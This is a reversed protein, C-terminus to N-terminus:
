PEAGWARVQLFAESLQEGRALLWTPGVLEVLAAALQLGSHKQVGSVHSRLLWNLGRRVSTPWEQRHVSASLRKHLDLEQACARARLAPNDDASTTAPAPTPAHAHARADAAWM